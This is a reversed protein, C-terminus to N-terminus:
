PLVSNPARVENAVKADNVFSNSTRGCSDHGLYPHLILLTTLHGVMPVASMCIM